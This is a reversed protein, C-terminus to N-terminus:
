PALAAAAEEEEPQQPSQDTEDGDPGFHEDFWRQTPAYDEEWQRRQEDTIGPAGGFAEFTVINAFVGAAIENPHYAHRTNPIADMYAQSDMLPRIVPEDQDDRRVRFVGDGERELDVLVMRLDGPLSPHPQRENLLLQPWVWRREGGEEVQIVWRTDVGDPNTLRRRRVPGAGEIEDAHVFGWVETYLPRFWEPHLRQLVHVQEHILLNGMGALAQEEPLNQRMQSMVRLIPPSLVIHENRTHPLSGLVGGGLKIFSWPQQAFRPYREALVPRLREVYWRLTQREAETFSGAAEAVRQKVDERRQELTQGEPEQGILAPIEVPQLREFYPHMSDDALAEAAAEESLFTAADEATQQTDPEGAEASAAPALSALWLGWTLLAFARTM